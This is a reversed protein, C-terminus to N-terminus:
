PAPDHPEDLSKPEEMVALFVMVAMFGAIAVDAALLLAFGPNVENPALQQVISGGMLFVIVFAVTAGVAAVV